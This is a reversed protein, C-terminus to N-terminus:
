WAGKHSVGARINCDMPFSASEAAANKGGKRKSYFSLSYLRLAYATRLQRGVNSVSRTADKCNEPKYYVFVAPFTETGPPILAATCGHTVNGKPQRHHRGCLHRARHTDQGTRGHAARRLRTHEVFVEGNSQWARFATADQQTGTTETTQGADTSIILTCNGTINTIELLGDEGLQGTIDTGNLTVSLISHGEAAAAHCRFTEGYNVTTFFYANSGAVYYAVTYSQQTFSVQLTANETLAPLTLTGDASVQATYDTGNFSVSGIEYGPTAQIQLTTTAEPLVEITSNTTYVNGNHSISGGQGIRLNLMYTETPVDIGEMNLFAGWVPAQIYDILATKPVYLKCTNPNITEFSQSVIPPNNGLCTIAELNTCEGFANYSINSVDAGITVQTASCGYFAYNKIETVNDPIVLETVLTNDIYLNRAYSLPNSHPDSFTIGCWGAMDGTYYVTKLSSCSDFVPSVIFGGIHTIGSGITVQTLASCYAFAGNGISTVSNGITVETLASCYRFASEGISTVSNPITVQTLADCGSFASSGISTVSEPITISTILCSEFANVPIATLQTPLDIQLLTKKDSFVAEPLTTNTIGSIDLNYLRSMNNKIISFDDDNLTGTVTLKNVATPIYGEAVITETLGGPTEVHVTLEVENGDEIYTYNSSWAATYADKTGTPIFVIAFSTGEFCNSGLTPPTTAECRVSALASCESFAYNGISTVSNPITVQTLATCKYFAYDGISTVNNPITVQTLASCYYFAYNKIESVSEPIALETVLTNGIYLNHAYSLPNSTSGDFTIGCWGAIDGTYYVATLAECRWFAENGISTVSNGITVETLASCDYFASYGISTVSNPITVQTLTSCYQFASSGISTVNNPINVQTLADCGSFASEGISTVSYNIGNYSVTDPITVAGSLSSYNSSSNLAEYTVEVTKNSADTINYYLDGAKFDYAWASAATLLTLAFTFLKKTM